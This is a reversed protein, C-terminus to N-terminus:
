RERWRHDRSPGGLTQKCTAADPAGARLDTLAQDIADDVKHWTPPSRPKLSPEVEDWSTELDKIRIKAGALDGKDVLAATDVIITRFSSLDGLGASTAAEATYILDHASPWPLMRSRVRQAGGIRHTHRDAETAEHHAGLQVM